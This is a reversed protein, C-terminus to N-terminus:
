ETIKFEIKRMPIGVLGTVASSSESRLIMADNIWDLPIHEENSGSAVAVCISYEGKLLIPMLFHFEAVIASGARVNLPADHYTFYTNDGFLIQGLRDKVYFGIIPSFIDQTINARIIFTVEEGGVVWTLPTNTEDCLEVSFIEAEKTGFRSVDQNFEIIKIDNRLNTNNLWALRGDKREVSIATRKATPEIQVRAAPGQISEYFAQLYLDSVEKASGHAQVVGKELWLAAQCINKVAATDHSVFLISGNELFKRLFRMCKQTFFADGVALAEDIVLIDADVHAIVAFALRVYMGSSYTKVPQDIFEGIDAFAIIDDLRQAVEARSLGLLQGNMFINERGSYEPNFGSGLELLAAVRGQIQVDGTTSNLTGCLIQLLTSKGSGNRGIIGLTEGKKLEFNVDRLAWHQRSCAAALQSLKLRFKLVPCLRALLSYLGQILRDNPKDYMQFCKGVNTVKIVLNSSM